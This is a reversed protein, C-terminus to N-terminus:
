SAAVFSHITTLLSMCVACARVPIVHGYSHVCHLNCKGHVTLCRACAAPAREYGRAGERVRERGRAGERWRECVLAGAIDRAQAGNHRAGARRALARPYQRAAM